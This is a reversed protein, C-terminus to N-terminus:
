ILLHALNRQAKEGFTRSLIGNIERYPLDLALGEEGLPIHYKQKKAYEPLPVILIGRIQTNDGVISEPFFPSPLGGNVYSPRQNTLHFKEAEEEPYELLVEIAEQVEDKGIKSHRGGFNNPTVLAIYVGDSEYFNTHVTQEPDLEDVLHDTFNYGLDELTDKIYTIEKPLSFPLHTKEILKVDPSKKIIKELHVATVRPIELQRKERNFVVSTSLENLGMARLTSTLGDKCYTTAKATRFRYRTRLM